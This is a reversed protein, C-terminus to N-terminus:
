STTSTLLYTFSLRALYLLSIQRRATAHAGAGRPPPQAEGRSSALGCVWGAGRVEFVFPILPFLLISPMAGVAQSAVKICAVAIRIRSICLLTLLFVLGTVVSAAIAIWKWTDRDLTTPDAVPPLKSSIAQAHM